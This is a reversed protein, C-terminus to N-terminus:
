RRKAGKRRGHDRTRVVIAGAAHEHKLARAAALADPSDIAVVVTGRDRYVVPRGPEAVTLPKAKPGLVPPEVTWRVRLSLCLEDTLTDAPAPPEPAAHMDDVSSATVRGLDVTRETAIEVRAPTGSTTIVSAGADGLRRGSAFEYPASGAWHRLVADLEGAADGDVVVGVDLTSDPRTVEDFNLTHVLGGGGSVSIAKAHVRERGLVACGFGSMARAAAVASRVMPNVLVTVDVGDMALECLRQAVQSDASWTFSSAIVPGAPDALLDLAAATIGDGWRTSTPVTLTQGTSTPGISTQVATSSWQVTGLPATAALRGPEIMQHTAAEWFSWRIAAALATATDGSVRVALEDNSRMAGDRLNATLVLGPGGTAPDALAFKAHFGEASRVMASRALRDLLEQHESVAHRDDDTLARRTTKLQEQSASLVYTRVGRQWAREIEAVVAESGILFSGIVVTSEAARIVQCVADGIATGGSPIVSSSPQPRTGHASRRDFWVDHLVRDSVDVIREHQQVWGDM